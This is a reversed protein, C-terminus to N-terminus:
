STDGKRKIMIQIPQNNRDDSSLKETEAKAKDITVEMKEIELLRIDDEYAMDRFQKLMNRLEAMSRSLSQMFTAQKNWAQEIEYEKEIPIQVDGERTEVNEVKLKKLTETRDNIDEVYMIQQARVISAFQMKINMWLIDAPGMTEIDNMIEMTEQPLYKAFLGHKKSNTNKKLKAPPAGTSKGGHMRCRGNAMAKNKCPEGSRTKAGCLNNAHPENQM